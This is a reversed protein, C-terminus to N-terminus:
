AAQRLIPVFVVQGAVLGSGTTINNFSAIRQWENPTGYFQTSVIRLDTDQRAYFVGIIDPNLSALLDQQRRAAERWVKKTARNLGRMFNAYQLQQAVTLPTAISPANQSLIAVGVSALPTLTPTVIGVAPPTSSITDHLTDMTDQIGALVGAIRTAADTSQQVANVSAALADAANSAAQQASTISNGIGIAVNSAVQIQSPLQAATALASVNNALQMRVDSLDASQAFVAPVSPEGRNIWGFSMEWEVDQRRIWKQVFKILIGVRTIEDWTVELLQGNMRIDDVTKCLEMVDALDVGDLQAIATNQQVFGDPGVSSLFRDKWMGNVMTEDEAAGFVQVTAEPNGPYWTFEARMRGSFAVGQYPLARGALRLTRQQGTLERITFSTASSV